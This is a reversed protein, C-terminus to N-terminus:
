KKRFLRYSSSVGNGPCGVPEFNRSEPLPNDGTLLDWYKNTMIISGPPMINSIAKLDAEKQTSFNFGGQFNHLINIREIGAREFLNNLPEGAARMVITVHKNNYGDEVIQCEHSELFPALGIQNLYLLIIRKNLDGPYKELLRELINLRRRSEAVIADPSFQGYGIGIIRFKTASYRDPNTITLYRSIIMLSVAAGCGFDVMIIQGNKSRCMENILDVVFEETPNLGTHWSQYLLGREDVDGFRGSISLPGYPNEIIEPYNLLLGIINESIEQNSVM